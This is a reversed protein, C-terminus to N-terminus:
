ELAIRSWVVRCKYKGAPQYEGLMWAKSGRGDNEDRKWRKGPTVGTPISWSYEPLADLEAKTLLAVPLQAYHLFWSLYFYTERTM